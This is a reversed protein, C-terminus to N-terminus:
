QYLMQRTYVSVKLGRGRKRRGEREGRGKRVRARPGERREKRM